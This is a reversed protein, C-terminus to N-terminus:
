EKRRGGEREPPEPAFFASCTRAFAATTLTSPRRINNKVSFHLCIDIGEVEARLLEVYKDLKEEKAKNPINM